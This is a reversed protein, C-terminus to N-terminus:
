FIQIQPLKNWHFTTLKKRVDSGEYDLDGFLAVLMSEERYEIECKETGVPKIKEMLIDILFHVSTSCSDVSFGNIKIYAASDSFFRSFKLKKSSVRHKFEYKEAVVPKNRKAM